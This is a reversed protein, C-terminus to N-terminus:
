CSPGSSAVVHRLPSAPTANVDYGPNRSVYGVWTCSGPVQPASAIMMQVSTLCKGSSANWIWEGGLRQAVTATGPSKMRVYIDGSAFGDTDCRDAASSWKAVTSKRAAPATVSASPSSASVSAKPLTSAAPSTSSTCGALALVALGAATRCITSKM